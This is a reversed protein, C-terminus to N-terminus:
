EVLYMTNPDYILVNGDEQVAIDVKHGHARKLVM